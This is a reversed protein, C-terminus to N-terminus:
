GAWHPHAGLVSTAAAEHRQFRLNRDTQACRM